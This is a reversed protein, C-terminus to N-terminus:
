TTQEARFQRQLYDIYGIRRGRALGAIDQLGGYVLGALLATKTTRAAMVM